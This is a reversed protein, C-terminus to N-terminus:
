ILFKWFDHDVHASSQKERGVVFHSVGDSVGLLGCPIFVKSGADFTMINSSIWKQELSKTVKHAIPMEVM